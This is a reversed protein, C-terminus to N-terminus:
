FDSLICHTGPGCSGSVPDRGAVGLPMNLSLGLLPRLRRDIVKLKRGSGGEVPNKVFGVLVIEGREYNRRWRRSFQVPPSFDQSCAASGRRAVVDLLLHADRQRLIDAHNRQDGDDYVSTFNQKGSASVHQLSDFARSCRVEVVQKDALWPVAPQNAYCEIM